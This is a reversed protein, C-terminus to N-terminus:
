AVNVFLAMWKPLLHRIFEGECGQISQDEVYIM